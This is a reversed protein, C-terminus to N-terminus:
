KGTKEELLKNIQKLMEIKELAETLRYTTQSLDEQLKRNVLLASNEYPIDGKPNDKLGTYHRFFDYRLAICISHLLESDISKRKYIGYVNQKSTNILKALATPGVRLSKAKEKILSGIHLNTSM